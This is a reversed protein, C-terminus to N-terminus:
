DAAQALDPEQTRANLAYVLSRSPGSLVGLTRAMPSVLMGLLRAQLQERTPLTAIAEVDTATVTRDGMVGGKVVLVRSSRVFDSVAKATQVPDEFAFVLASPGDLMQDLGDVGANNAAIRTLTNKAVHFEGGSPRLNGRLTQLDGVNLGRYDTVIVLQARALQEAIAEITQAKRRTPM